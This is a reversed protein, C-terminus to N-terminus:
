LAAVVLKFADPKRERSWLWFAQRGLASSDVQLHLESALAKAIRPGSAESYRHDPLLYRVHVGVGSKSLRIEAQGALRRRLRQADLIAAATTPYSRGGHGVDFDWGVWSLRGRSSTGKCGLALVDDPCRDDSSRAEWARGPVAVIIHRLRLWMATWPHKDVIQMFAEELTM